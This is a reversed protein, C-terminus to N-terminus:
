QEPFVDDSAPHPVDAGGQVVYNTNAQEFPDLGSADAYEDTFYTVDYTIRLGGIVQEGSPQLDIEVDRPLFDSCTGSLDENARMINEVEEALDDLADDVNGVAQVAIEIALRLTRRMQKAGASFLENHESLSYVTVAPLEEYHTPVVRSEFVKSAGISMGAQLLAVVANRIAKRQSM